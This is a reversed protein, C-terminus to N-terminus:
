KTKVTIRKPKDAEARPLTLELIGNRYTAAVKDAEVSFPLSYSRVFDGASRERRLWTEGEKLEEHRRTGRITVTDDHVAIDLDKPDIGPLEATLLAGDGHTWINVAPYEGASGDGSYADFLRNMERQLRDLEMWPDWRRGTLAPWLM